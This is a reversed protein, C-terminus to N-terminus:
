EKRELTQTHKKETAVIHCINWNMIKGPIRKIDSADSLVCM